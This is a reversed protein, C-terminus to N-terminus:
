RYPYKYQTPNKWAFTEENGLYWPSTHYPSEPARSLSKWTGGTVPSMAKLRTTLSRICLSRSPCVAKRREAPQLDESWVPRGLILM